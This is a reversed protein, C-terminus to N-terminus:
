REFIIFHVFKLNENNFPSFSHKLWSNFLFLSGPVINNFHIENHCYKVENFQNYNLEIMEKSERPDHFIPYSSGLPSDLIYFGCIQSKKHHHAIHFGGVKIEQIWIECDLNVGSLNYGQNQLIEYGKSIVYDKFSIFNEDNRLSNSQLVRFNNHNNEDM